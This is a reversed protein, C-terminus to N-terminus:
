KAGVPLARTTEYREFVTSGDDTRMYPLMVQPLTVMETEIIAAQAAIWDGLIRWAVREVHDPTLYRSAVRQRKLV